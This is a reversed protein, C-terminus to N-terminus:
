YSPRWVCSTYVCECSACTGIYQKAAPDGIGAGITLKVEKYLLQWLDYEMSGRISKGDFGTEPENQGKKIQVYQLSVFARLSEILWLDLNCFAVLNDSFSPNASLSM